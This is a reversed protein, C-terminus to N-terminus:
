ISYKRAQVFSIELTSLIKGNFYLMLDLLVKYQIEKNDITIIKTIVYELKQNLWLAINDM